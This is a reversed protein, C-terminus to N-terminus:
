RLVTQEDLEPITYISEWNNTTNPICFPFTFEYSQILKEKFYHREIMTFNKVPKNGVSFTLSTGV